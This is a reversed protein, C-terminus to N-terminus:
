KKNLVFNCIKITTSNQPGITHTIELLRWEKSMSIVPAFHACTVDTYWFFILNINQAVHIVHNNKADKVQNALLGGVSEPSMGFSYPMTIELKFDFSQIQSLVADMQADFNSTFVRTLNSLNGTDADHPPGGHDQFTDGEQVEHEDDVSQEPENVGDTKKISNSVLYSYITEPLDIGSLTGRFAIPMPNCFEDPGVCINIPAFGDNNSAKKQYIVSIHIHTKGDKIETSTIFRVNAKEGDQKTKEAPDQFREYWLRNIVSELSEGANTKFDEMKSDDKTKKYAKTDFIPDDEFDFVVQATETKKSEKEAAKNFQVLLEKELFEKFTGDGNANKLLGGNLTTEASIQKKGGGVWTGIGTIKYSFGSEQQFTITCDHNDPVYYAFNAGPMMGWLDGRNTPGMYAIAYKHSRLKAIIEFASGAIDKLTVEFHSELPQNSVTSFSWSISEITIGELYSMDTAIVDGTMELTTLEALAIVFQMRINDAHGIHHHPSLAEISEISL